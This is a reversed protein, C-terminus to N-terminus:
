GGTMTSIDVVFRYRVDGTELRAYAVDIEDADIPEIEARIGHAGCFDLMEQTEAIGGISSGAVSRGNALLSFPDFALPKTSVGLNVLTGHMALLRLFSDLDYSAPITSVVLDFSSELGALAAPDSALSFEDAGFRAADARKGEDLDLVTTHAGLAHSIQVAVHGLGGLGVVAVRRGPGASWRRLPSYVTIGACLLPAAQSLPIQEPIHVVFDQDVVVRESYGGYTPQGDRGIWNYTRIFTSTCHQEQGARCPACERCSDV